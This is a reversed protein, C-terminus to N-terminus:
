VTPRKSTPFFLVRFPRVPDDAGPSPLSAFAPDVPFGTEVLREEPIKKEILDRRTDHDTVLWYHSPAKRWAANIEISDTIVTVLPRERGGAKVYREVFYPYLPYTSVLVHPDFSDIQAALAREALHLMPARQRSFDRREASRYIRGWVSPLYTTVVRYGSRLLHNLLPAGEACPDIIRAEAQSALAKALNRAASNHGDGFGATAILVRPRGDSKM